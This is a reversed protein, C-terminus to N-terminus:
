NESSGKLLAKGQKTLHLWYVQDAGPVTIPMPRQLSIEERTLTLPKARTYRRKNMLTDLNM